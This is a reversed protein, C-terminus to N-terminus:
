VKMVRRRALDFGLWCLLVISLLTLSSGQDPVILTFNQNAGKGWSWKYTGPTVGLSNFTAKDWTAGDSLPSNSIYGQPV